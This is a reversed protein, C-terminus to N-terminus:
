DSEDYRNSVAMAIVEELWYELGQLEEEAQAKEEVSLKDNLMLERLLRSLDRYERVLEIDMVPDTHAAHYDRLGRWADMFAEYAQSRLWDVSSDDAEIEIALDVMRRELSERDMETEMPKSIREVLM